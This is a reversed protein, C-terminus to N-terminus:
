ARAPTAGGGPPPPPPPRVAEPPQRFAEGLRRPYPLRELPDSSGGAKRPNTFAHLYTALRDAVADPLVGGIRTTGDGRRRLHLRPRRHAAAELAALRRAEAEEAIEPAVVDLIRRGLRHLQRPGFTAAHGVLTEEAHALVDSPVESPLDDLVRAIVQAQAVTVDGSRLAAGLAAWRDDLAVALALDARADEHRVRAQAALWEAADHAAADAAVDDAIALIRLRLETLRSDARVLDRLADAKEDASMFTPNVDTVSKLAAEITALAEHVPHMAPAEESTSM